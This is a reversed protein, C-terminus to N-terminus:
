GREIIKKGKFVTMCNLCLFCGKYNEEEEIPTFFEDKCAPCKKMMEEEESWM